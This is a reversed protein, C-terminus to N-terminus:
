ATVYVFVKTYEALVTKTVGAKAVSRVTFFKKRFLEPFYEYLRSRFARKRSKYTEEVYPVNQESHLVTNCLRM